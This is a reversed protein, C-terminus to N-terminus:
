SRKGGGEKRSHGNRTIRRIRKKKKRAGRPRGQRSRGELTFSPGKKTEKDINMSTDTKQRRGAKGERVTTGPPIEKAKKAGRKLFDSKARGKKKWSLRTRQLGLKKSTEGEGSPLKRSRPKKETAEEESSAKKRVWVDRKKRKRVHEHEVSSGNGPKKSKRGQEVSRGGGGERTTSIQHSEERVGTKSEGLLGGKKDVSADENM